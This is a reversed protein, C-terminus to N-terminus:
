HRAADQVLLSRGSDWWGGGVAVFLAVTDQLRQARAQVYGIRAQHLQAVAVLVQLYNATGAEYNARVLRLAEDADAMARAYHDLAEADHELAKLADAVQAFATLVTQRYAALAQDYADIAAQRKELLEGGHFLPTTLGAGLSWFIGGPALLTSLTTNNGGLSGTLTINPFLAATAVGIEASAQHLQAEAALIDPRQHVIESPLSVPVSAPLKLDSFTVSPPKWQGPLTGALTALLHEAEAARQRLPPVTAEVSALQSRLSFASSYAATGAEAQAMTIEVQERQDRAIDETAKAQEEYAAAAIVANVVNATLTVYAAAVSVRQFDAQAKLSEVARRQGGWLDLTYSVTGSLSFLNFVPSPISPEGLKALSFKQRSFSADLDAQPFFIGYGARLNAQSARLSAVAGKLTQNGQVADKVLADLEPSGFLSWWDGVVEAGRELRQAEGDAAVTTAPDGEPTYRDVAPAEPRVFDPGVACGSAFASGLALLTMWTAPGRPM